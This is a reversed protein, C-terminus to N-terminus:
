MPIDSPWGGQQEEEQKRFHEQAQEFLNENMKAHWASSGMVLPKKVPDSITPRSMLGYRTMDYPDDGTMLDGETADVKLVDEVRDPDHIMRTLCDYTVPCTNFIFFRPKGDTHKGNVEPGRGRWALYSRLQAAGQIRDVVAPSLQIGHTLFEEAITPPQKDDRLTSKQTWCDRGAVIPYLAATDKFRNLERAYQDVRTQARSLERYLYTNGDEDNAFWGFVAPHNYGYDYAGFRNWHDPIPFPQIFHVARTIEQFFQGAFIDWDGYRYARRLAENPEADLRRVYGPDNEMLAPNDDVLAAVFAYDNPDERENFRGDVFLRKLWGHGIGGPNGTLLCRAPINPDASRNSGQLTRFMPETWQGAEDIALDHTERGQYLEVDKENNCHCFELTSGNPLSLLKKQENYYPRLGPFQRFLPRIHNDELEPYTRRFIKGISKPYEFRRLLMLARLGHTKGGGKAGGYLTVPFQNVALRFVKQKPQLAIEIETM